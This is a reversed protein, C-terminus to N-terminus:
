INQKIITLIKKYIATIDESVNLQIVVFTYATVILGSKILINIIPNFNLPLLNVLFYALAGLILILLNSFRFPSMKFYYFVIIFRAINYSFISIASAIAAGIIGYMPILLYNTLITVLALFPMLFINAKYYKSNILIEGNLGLSMDFTKALAIFFVVYKGAIYLDTNPIIFFLDEINIWLCIFFLTGVIQLTISSKQYLEKIHVTNNEKWAQAILPSSIKSIARRPFDMMLAISFAIAYVGVDAFGNYWSIMISDIKSVIVGGGSGLFMFLGYTLIEKIIGKKNIPRRNIKLEGLRYLYFILALLILFYALIVGNIFYNFSILKFALALSLIFILFRLVIERFAKPVVIRKFVSTYSEVLVTFLILLTLIPIKYFISLVYKSREQYYGLISDSFIFFSIVFLLYGIIAILLILPLFGNHSKNKDKFYEFFRITITPTGFQAFTVFLLSADILVKYLGIEEQSLYKPFIFLMNIYAIITGLYSVITGKISQRIIIGM